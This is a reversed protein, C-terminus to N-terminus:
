PRLFLDFWEYIRRWLDRINAPGELVHGEGWYRVFTSRKNQRHLASFMQEGQQMAVYDMDGHVIMLPTKIREVQFLPSNRVYRDFDKWPPNGMRIQGTESQSMGSLREHAFQDYRFRADLVGYLSLLDSLGALSVAAQFRNTQAILGYTAYGGYSQGLVGLRKPDAIGLEIVKDVAPLVGKTMELYPDSAEGEPKLPMSPYLVAYGRAALLHFNLSSPNNINRAHGAPPSDGFVNGAYAITVLPYSRGAQYGVPLLVWGKLERGDLSRYEIKKFETQAIERLQTNTEVITAHHKFPAHTLWLYNGARDRATLIATGTQPHFDALTAEPNPKSLSTLQDSSLDVRHWGTQAGARANVIVQTVTSVEDSLPTPWVTSIIRPEFEATLNQPERGDVRIRWLEGDAIGVFSEQKDRILERPVIKLAATINREPGTENLAWWDQRDGPKSSMLMLPVGGVSWTLASPEGKSPFVRCAGSAVTCIVAQPGDSKLRGVLALSKGDPSWRLSNPRVEKVEALGLLVKIGDRSFAVAQYVASHIGGHMLVRNPEPRVVDIHKLAVFREKDPSLRLERFSFGADIKRSGSKVDIVVLEGQPRRDLSVPIGSELVSATTEQGRWAKPWERMAIEAARMEVTMANPKQGEPLVFCVLQRSNLWAFPPVQLVAIDVGRKSLQNLRGSPKDWLWLHVNGSKTSLMGLNRSDPSWTPAWWGSGDVLGNTLNRPKGGLTSVLWVDGRDNGELFPRTHILATAKARRVVYALWQGDPSLAVQGVEELKFLDDPTLPRLLREQSFATVFSAFILLTPYLIKPKLKGVIM